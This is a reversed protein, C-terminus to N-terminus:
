LKKIFHTELTKFGLKDFLNKRKEFGESHMLTSIIFEYGEDQLTRIINKFFFISKHRHQEEVYWVVQHFTKAKSMPLISEVGAFMGVCKGDVVLLFSHDRLNDISKLISETDMTQEFPILMEKHMKYALDFIEDKRADTYKEITM